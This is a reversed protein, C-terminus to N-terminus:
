PLMLEWGLCRTQYMNVNFLAFEHANKYLDVRLYVNIVVCYRVTNRQRMSLQLKTPLVGFYYVLLWQDGCKLWSM